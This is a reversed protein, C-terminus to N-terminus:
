ARVSVLDGLDRLDHRASGPENGTLRRLCRYITQREFGVDTALVEAVIDRRAFETQGTRWGIRDIAALVADRCSPREDALKARLPSVTIAPGDVTHHRNTNHLGMGVPGVGLDRIRPGCQTEPMTGAEFALLYREIAQETKAIDTDVIDLEQERQTRDASRRAAADAAVRNFLERDGFLRPCRQARRHRTRWRTAPRRRM